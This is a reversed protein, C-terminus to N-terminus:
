SELSQVKQVIKDEPYRSDLIEITKDFSGSCLITQEKPSWEVKSVRDKHHSITYISQGKQLDWIKCTMDSSGSALINKHFKNLSISLVSDTHSGAKYKKNKNKFKKPKNQPADM